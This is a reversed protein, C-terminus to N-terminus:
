KPSSPRHKALHVLETIKVLAARCSDCRELHQKIRLVDVASLGPGAVYLALQDDDIHESIPSKGFIADHILVGAHFRESAQNCYRIEGFIVVGNATLIEVRSGPFLFFGVELQLGNRSVDLIKANQRQSATGVIIKVADNTRYRAERRKDETDVSERDM